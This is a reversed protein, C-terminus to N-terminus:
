KNIIQKTVLLIRIVVKNEKTNIIDIPKYTWRVLSWQPFVAPNITPDLRDLPQIKSFM